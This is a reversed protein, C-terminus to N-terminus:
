WSAQLELNFLGHRLNAASLRLVFFSSTLICFRLRAFALDEREEKSTRLEENLRKRRGM